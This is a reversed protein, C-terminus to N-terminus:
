VKKLEKELESKLKELEVLEELSQKLKNRKEEIYHQRAEFRKSVKEEVQNYILDFFRKIRKQNESAKALLILFIALMGLLPASQALELEDLVTISPDFINLFQNIYLFMPSLFAYKWWRKEIFFYILLPTLLCIKYTISYLAMNADVFGYHQIEFFLFQLSPTGIPFWKWLNLVFPLSTLVILLFIKKPSIIYKFSLSKKDIEKNLEISLLLIIIAASAIKFYFDEIQIDLPQLVSLLRWLVMYIPFSFLVKLYFLTNKWVVMFLLLPVAWSLVFYTFTEDSAYQHTYGYGLFNMSTVHSDDFYLHCYTLVPLFFIGFALLIEKIQIRRLM